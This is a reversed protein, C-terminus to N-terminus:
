YLKVSTINTVVWGSNEKKLIYTAGGGGLDNYGQSITIIAIKHDLSFLPKEIITLGKSYIENGSKDLKRASILTIPSTVRSSNLRFKTSDKVQEFIYNVDEKTFYETYPLYAFDEISQNAIALENYIFSNEGVLEKNALSHNVVEYILKKDVNPQVSSCSMCIAIFAISLLIRSYFIQSKM